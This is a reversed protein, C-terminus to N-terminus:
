IEIAKGKCASRHYGDSRGDESTRGQSRSLNCLGRYYPSMTIPVLLEAVGSVARSTSSAAWLRLRYHLTLGTYLRRGNFDAIDM